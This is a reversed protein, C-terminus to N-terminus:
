QLSACVPCERWYDEEWSPALIDEMGSPTVAIVKCRHKGSNSVKVLAVKGHGSVRVERSIGSRSVSIEEIKLDGGLPVVKEIRRSNNFERFIMEQKVEQVQGEALANRGPMM